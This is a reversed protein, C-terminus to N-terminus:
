QLSLPLLRATNADEEDSYDGEDGMHTDREGRVVGGTGAASITTVPRMGSSVLYHSLDQEAQTRRLPPLYPAGSGAAAAPDEHRTPPLPQLVRQQGEHFRRLRELRQLPPTVPPSEDGVTRPSPPHIPVPVVPALHGGPWWLLDVVQQQTLVEVVLGMPESLRRAFAELELRRSELAYWTTPNSNSLIYVSTWAAFKNVYRADLQHKWKDLLCNMEQLDWKASNFEEFIVTKEGCYAGWPDRGPHVVYADPFTTRTRHSKGTQTAGWLVTTHIERMIPINMSAYVQIMKEMGGHYKLFEGPHSQVLDALTKGAQIAVGIVALDTRGGQRGAAGDFVGREILPETPVRTDEKVCYDRNQQETGKAVELHIRPHLMGRVQDMRKRNGFRVYGQWHPTGTGSGRELQAVLYVM